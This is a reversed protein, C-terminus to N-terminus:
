KENLLNSLPQGAYRKSVQVTVNLGTSSSFTVRTYACVPYQVNDKYRGDPGGDKKAYKWTKEIVTADFPVVGSELIMPQEDLTVKLDAYNVTGATKGNIVLLRDPFFYMASESGTLIEFPTVNSTIYKPPKYEMKTIIVAINQEAGGRRTSEQRELSKSGIVVCKASCNKLEDLAAYLKNAKEEQENDLNYILYTMKKSNGINRWIVSIIILGLLSLWAMISSGSISYVCISFIPTFILGIFWVNTKSLKSNIENLIDDFAVDRMEATNGQDALEFDSLQLAAQPAPESKKNTKSNANLSQRYRIGLPGSMNIFNGSPGNSIRLGKVGFSTGIGSKSFNIRFPGLKASKRFYFGM